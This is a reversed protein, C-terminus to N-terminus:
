SALQKLRPRRARYIKERLVVVGCVTVVDPCGRCSKLHARIRQAQEEPLQGALYERLNRMAENCDM